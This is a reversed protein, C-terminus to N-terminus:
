CRRVRAEERLAACILAANTARGIHAPLFVKFRKLVFM